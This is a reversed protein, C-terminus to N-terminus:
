GHAFTGSRQKKLVRIEKKRGAYKDKLTHIMEELEVMRRANANASAEDFSIRQPDRACTGGPSSTPATNAVNEKDEDNVGLSRLDAEFKQRLNGFRRSLLARRGRGTEQAKM